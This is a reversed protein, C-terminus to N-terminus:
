FHTTADSPKSRHIYYGYDIGGVTTKYQRGTQTGPQQEEFYSLRESLSDIIVRESRLDDELRSVRLMLQQIMLEATLEEGYATVFKTSM